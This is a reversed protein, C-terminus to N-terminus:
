DFFAEFHQHNPAQAHLTDFVDVADSTITEEFETGIYEFCGIAGVCQEHGATSKMGEVQELGELVMAFYRYHRTKWVCKAGAHAQKAQAALHRAVAGQQRLKARLGEGGRRWPPGGFLHASRM